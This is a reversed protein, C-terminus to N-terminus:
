RLGQPYQLFAGNSYIIDCDFTTTQGGAPSAEKRGDRGNSRIFYTQASASGVPADSRFEFPNGWGDKSIGPFDKIYTPSLVTGMQASTVEFEPETLQGRGKAYGNVNELSIAISRMDNMTVMAAKRDCMTGPKAREFERGAFVLSKSSPSYLADIRGTPGSVSLVGEHVAAVLKTGGGDDVIYGDGERRITLTECQNQRGMWFGAYQDAPLLSTLPGSGGGERNGCACLIMLLLSCTVRRVM